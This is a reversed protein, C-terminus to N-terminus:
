KLIINRTGIWKGSQKKLDVIGTGGPYSTSYNSTISPDDKFVFDSIWFPEKGPLKLAAHIHAPDNRNPYKGPRISEIVYEGKANTIAWGHYQGHWKQAGQEKGNKSYVGSKDTHYAYIIVDSVPTKGDVKYIVGSITMPEGDTNPLVIKNSLNDPKYIFSCNISVDPGDCADTSSKKTETKPASSQGCSTFWLFVSM